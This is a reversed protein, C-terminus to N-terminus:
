LLLSGPLGIIGTDQLDYLLALMEHESLKLLRMLDGVRRSGNVLLFVRRHIRSLGREALIQLGDELPRRIYPVTENVRGVDGPLAKGEKQTLQDMKGGPWSETAREDWGAHM